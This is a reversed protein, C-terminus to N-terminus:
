SKFTAAFQQLEAKLIPDHQSESVELTLRRLDAADSPLIFSALVQVFKSLPGLRARRWEDSLQPQVLLHLEIKYFNTAIPRLSAATQKVRTALPSDYTGNVSAQTLQCTAMTIVIVSDVARGLEASVTYIHYVEQISSMWSMLTSFDAPGPQEDNLASMDFVTDLLRKVDPDSQGPPQGAIRSSEALRVLDTAAAKAATAAATIRPHPTDPQPGHTCAQLLGILAIMAVLHHLTRCM